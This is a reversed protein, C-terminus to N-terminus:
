CSDHPRRWMPHLLPGGALHIPPGHDAYGHTLYLHRTRADSAELYAPMGTADLTAHHARLLASGIGRGQRDPRVALIALHHHSMGSPHHRELAKDFVRFRETWPSTATALRTDYDPDPPPPNVGTPLWLAAASRDTTTHVAGSALAHEVFIRFYGPFVERRADRDPILWRSPALDFFADAIVQSLTDADAPDATIVGGPLSASSPALRHHPAM